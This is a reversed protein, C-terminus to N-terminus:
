GELHHLPPQEPGSCLGDTSEHGRPPAAPSAACPLSAGVRDKISDHWRRPTASASAAAMTSGVASDGGVDSRDVTGAGCEGGGKPWSPVPRRMSRGQIRSLLRATIAALFLAM